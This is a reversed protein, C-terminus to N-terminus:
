STGAKGAGSVFRPMAYSALGLAFAMGAIALITADLGLLHALVGFLAPGSILGFYAFGVIVSIERLPQDGAARGAESVIIPFANGLALGVFIYASILLAANGTAVAITLLIGAIVLPVALLLNPAIMSGLRDGLFRSVTMAVSFLLVAHGAQDVPLQMVRNLHLASWDVVGGEVLSAMTISAGLFLIVALPLRIPRDPGTGDDDRHPESDLWRSALLIYGGYAFTCLIISALPDHDASLIVTILGAGGLMGLSFLAHFSSMSRKGTAQEWQSSQSNLGADVFGAAFGTVAGFLFFVPLSGTLLCVAFGAGYAPGAFRILRGSDQLAPLKTVLFIAACLSLGISLLFGSIMLESLGLEASRLPVMVGWMGMFLGLGFFGVSISNRAGAIQSSDM